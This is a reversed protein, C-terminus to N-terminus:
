TCRAPDHSSDPFRTSVAPTQHLPTTDANNPSRKGPTSLPLEQSPQVGSHNQPPYHPQPTRPTVGSHTCICCRSSSGALPLPFYGPPRALTECLSNESSAHSCKPWLLILCLLTRSFSFRFAVYRHMRSLGPIFQVSNRFLDGNMDNHPHKLAADAFSTPSGMGPQRGSSAGRM